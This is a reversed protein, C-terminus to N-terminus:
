WACSWPHCKCRGHVRGPTASPHVRSTSADLTAGSHLAIGWVRLRIPPYPLTLMAIQCTPSHVVSREDAKAKWCSRFIKYVSKPMNKTGALRGGAMLLKHVEANRLGPYPSQGYAFIEWALIGYAWVDSKLSFRRDQLIEVASWRIPIKMM